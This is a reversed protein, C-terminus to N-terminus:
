KEIRTGSGPTLLTDHRTIVVSGVGADVAKLAGTIKPIMGDAVIGDAKLSVFSRATISPIVSSPDNIDALVGPMEFCMTLEVDFRESLGVALATAVSDANTNLLQGSSDCTIACMVPSVGMDLVASLFDVNVGDSPVDGVYGYDVPEPSRRVSRLAMADAGSFGAANCGSAQLAAVIRKNILGAYVMTVVDLTAADTVRRGEIMTTKIDLAQAIKTAERGGGHVLLKRGPVRAFDALFSRLAAPDNIVNGGIKVIRLSPRTM